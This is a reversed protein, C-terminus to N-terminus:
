RARFYRWMKLVVLEVPVFEMVLFYKPVSPMRPVTPWGGM